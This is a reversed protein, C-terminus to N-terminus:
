QSPFGGPTKPKIKAIKLQNQLAADQNPDEPMQYFTKGADKINFYDHVYERSVLGNKFAEIMLAFEAQTDPSSFPPKDWVLEPENGTILPVIREEVQSKFNVRFDNLAIRADERQSEIISKNAGGQLLLGLPVSFNMLAIAIWPELLDNMPLLKANGGGRGLIDIEHERDIVFNNSSSQVNKLAEGFDRIAKAKDEKKMGQLNLRAIIPAFGIRKLAEMVDGGSDMLGTLFVLNPRFLSMPWADRASEIMMMHFIRDSRLSGDPNPGLLADSRPQWYKRQGYDPKSPDTEITINFTFPDLVLTNTLRGV